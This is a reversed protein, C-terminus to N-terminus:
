TVASTADASRATTCTNTQNTSANIVTSGNIAYVGISSTGGRTVNNGGSGLWLPASATTAVMCINAGNVEIVNGGQWSLGGGDFYIGYSTSATGSTDIKSYGIAGGQVRNLYAGIAATGSSIVLPCWNLNLSTAQSANILYTNTGTLLCGNLTVYSNQVCYLAYGNAPGALTINNLTVVQNAGITLAFGSAPAISNNVDYVTFTDGNVISGQWTGCTTITSTDNSDVVRFVGNNSGSTGKILKNKRQNVTWSGSNRKVTGAITSSGQASGPVACTIADLQTVSGNITLASGDLIFKGAINLAEAFTQGATLNLIVATPCITPVQNIAYQMTQFASGGAATGKDIADSGGTDVYMTVSGFAFLSKWNTGDYYLMVTRGTPTHLFFQGKVPNTPVTPGTNNMLVNAYFAPIDSIVTNNTSTFNVLSGANSSAMVGASPRTLSAVGTTITVVGQVVEWNGLNDYICVVTTDGTTAASALTRYGTQTIGTLTITGTGTTQTSNVVRDYVKCAVIAM